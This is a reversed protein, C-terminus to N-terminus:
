GMERRENDSFSVGISQAGATSYTKTVRTITEGVKALNKKSFTATNRESLGLSGAQAFADHDAGLYIVLYDDRRTLAELKERIQPRSYECSSNELGDTVIVVAIKEGKRKVPRRKIRGLCHGIADLLPTMGGCIYEVENVLPCEKYGFRLNRVIERSGDLRPDGNFVSLAIKQSIGKDSLVEDIYSNVAKLTEKKCLDMSGSADLIIHIYMPQKKKTM